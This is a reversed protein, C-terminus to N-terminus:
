VVPSKLYGGDYPARRPRKPSQRVSRGTEYRAQSRFASDVPTGEPLNGVPGDAPVSDYGDIPDSSRTHISLEVVGFAAIDM